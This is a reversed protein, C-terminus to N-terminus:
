KRKMKWKSIKKENLKFDKICSQYFLYSKKAMKVSSFSKVKSIANLGVKEAFSKDNLIRFIGDAIEEPNYPNVLLGDVENTIIEPGTSLKTFITPCGCAMAEIPAIGFSEAYSPFVAANAESYIEFLTERNVHGKFHIKHKLDEPIKKLLNDLMSGKDKNSSDKGYIDLTFDIGRNSLIIAADILEVIGKKEILTGSFVINNKKRNRFETVDFDPFVIGNYITIFDEDIRFVKKTIEAVYNSVSILYDARKYSLREMLATLRNTKKNLLFDFYSRAGHARIILPVDMKGWFAFWGRSDPAEIIDVQNEKVWKKIIKYQRYWPLFWAIRGKKTRIRWVKVGEDEEYDPAPYDKLYVGIVRTEHGMKVLERSIIRVFTGIGGHPGEPYEPCIYCIKM